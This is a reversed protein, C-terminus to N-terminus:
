FFSPRRRPVLGAVEVGEDGGEDEGVGEVGETVTSHTRTAPYM